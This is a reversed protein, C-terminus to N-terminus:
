GHSDVGDRRRLAEALELFSAYVQAQRDAIERDEVTAPELLGFVALSAEFGAIVNDTGAGRIAVLLRDQAAGIQLEALALQPGPMEVIAM